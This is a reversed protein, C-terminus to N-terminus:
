ELISIAKDFDAVTKFGLTVARHKGVSEMGHVYFPVKGVLRKIDKERCTYIFPFEKRKNREVQLGHFYLKAAVQCDPHKEIYDDMMEKIDSDLKM